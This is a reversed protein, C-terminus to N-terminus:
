SNNWDPQRDFSLHSYHTGEGEDNEPIWFSQLRDTTADFTAVHFHLGPEMAGLQKIQFLVYALRVRSYERYNVKQPDAFFKKNQLLIVFERLCDSLLIKDGAVKGEVKLARLYAQYLDQLYERPSRQLNRLKKDYELIAACVTKPQLSIKSVIKEIEPGFYLEARGFEFDLKLTYLGLRLLPYQGKVNIKHEGLLSKLKQGFQIKFEEKTEAIRDQERALWQRVENKIEGEPLTDVCKQINACQQEMIYVDEIPTNSNELYKSIARAIAQTSHSLQKLKEVIDHM